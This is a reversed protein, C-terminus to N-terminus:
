GDVLEPADTPTELRLDRAMRVAMVLTFAAFLWWQGAYAANRLRGRAEPLRPQAPELGQATADAASLTVFGNILPGPWQQALQTVRVSTTSGGREQDIAPESPLLVGVQEVRGTPPGVSTETVVGRVVAVASGDDQRLLTVVRFRDTVDPDAVLIQHEPEYQGAFRVSRGYGDGVKAGAPAVDGLAVPPEAARQVAVDAGQREYVRLQWLGMWVMATALGAALILVLIWNFRNVVTGTL